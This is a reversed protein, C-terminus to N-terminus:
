QVRGVLFVKSAPSLDCRRKVLAELQRPVEGTAVGKVEVAVRGKFNHGGNMCEFIVLLNTTREFTCVLLRLLFALFKGTTHRM